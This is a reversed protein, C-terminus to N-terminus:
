RRSEPFPDDVRPWYALSRKAYPIGAFDHSLPGPGSLYLIRSAHAAFAAHFHQASKVVVARKGALDIGIGTFADTGVIQQRESVILVDLGALTVWASPGFSQPAGFVTQVHDQATARVVVRAHIPAGAIAGSRAGLALEVEQGAGAAICRRVADPDVLGGLVVDDAGSSLLAALAFTSDGPAGGGPNDAADAIVLLGPARARVAEVVEALSAGRWAAEDRMRWFAAGLDQAIRGAETKDGDTVVLVKAGADAVDGWPFGHILSISLVGPRTELETMRAVFGAIPERTTPWLGVMRCDHVAMVPRIAGTAAAITLRCIDRGREATDTHPYHKFAVVVDANATMQETLHCHLDLLVGIPPGDGLTARLRALLDGECDDCESSVMAGHLILIAADVPGARALDALLEDRLHVYDAHAVPGGPPAVACLGETVTWGSEACVGHIADLMLSIVGPDADRNGNRRIGQSEFAAMDTAVASFTNTEAALCAVFLRM